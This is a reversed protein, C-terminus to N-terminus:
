VSVERVAEARRWPLLSTEALKVALNLVLALAMIAFLAAFTGATDFQAAAHSLLYGLGRNSAIIEGVIAGILAYPVSLRLGTFVWVVASPIVVKTVLHREKAGMLRLIAIQERSVQRVGTFTNLFVLFFVISASLIIKMDLGIGFWLIFLPALAAKPLSYFATLFPELVDALLTFRGLLLGCLMGAFGGLAFGALAEIATIGAHFVLSGNRLLDWLSRAIESPTSLFFELETWPSLIQWAALLALGFLVRLLNVTM